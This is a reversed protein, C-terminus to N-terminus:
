PLEKRSEDLYAAVAENDATAPAALEKYYTELEGDYGAEVRWMITGPASKRPTEKMQQEYVAKTVKNICYASVYVTSPTIVDPDDPDIVEEKEETKEEASIVPQTKTENKIWGYQTYNYITLEQGKWTDPLKFVLEGTDPNKFTIVSRSNDQKRWGLEGYNSSNLDVLNGDKDKAKSPLASYKNGNKDYYVPQRQAPTVSLKYTYTVTIQTVTLLDIKRTGVEGGISYARFPIFNINCKYTGPKVKGTFDVHISKQTCSTNTITYGVSATSACVDDPTQITPEPIYISVPDGAIASYPSIHMDFSLRTSEDCNGITKQLQVVFAATSETSQMIRVVASAHVVLYNWMYVLLMYNYFMTTAKITDPVTDDYDCGTQAAIRNNLLVQLTKQATKENHINALDLAEFAIKLREFYQKLKYYDDCRTCTPCFDWLSIGGTYEVTNYSNKVPAWSNCLSGNIYFNGLSDSAQENITQVYLEKAEAVAEDLVTKYSLTAKTNKMDIAVGRKVSKLSINNTIVKDTKGTRKIVIRKIM